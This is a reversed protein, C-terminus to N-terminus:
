NVFKKLRLLKKMEKKNILKKILLHYIMRLLQALLQILRLQIKKKSNGQNKTAKEALYNDIIVQSFNDQGFTVAGLMGRRVIGEGRSLWLPMRQEAVVLDLDSNEM